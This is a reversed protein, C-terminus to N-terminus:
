LRFWDLASALIRRLFGLYGSKNAAETRTARAALESDYNEPEIFVLKDQVHTAIVAALM